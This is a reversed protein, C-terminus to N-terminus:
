KGAIGLAREIQSPWSMYNTSYFNCLILVDDYKEIKEGLMEMCWDFSHSYRPDFVVIRKYHETLYPIMGNAYSEKVVYLTKDTNAETDIVVLKADGNIFASYGKEYNVISSDFELTRDGVTLTKMKCKTVPMYGYAIDKFDKTRIDGTSEYVTGVYSDSLLKEEFYSLDHPTLGMMKCYERYGYYAGLATWHHDSMYYIYEDKHKYLEDYCNIKIVSDDVMDLFNKIFEKQNGLTNILKKDEIFAAKTPVPMVAVKQDKSFQLYKNIANATKGYAGRSAYGAYYPVGKYLVYSGQPSFRNVDEGMNQGSLNDPAYLNLNINKTGVESETAITEQKSYVLDTKNLNDSVTINENEATDFFNKDDGLFILSKEIEYTNISLISKIYKTIDISFDRIFFSDILYDEFEKAFKGSSLNQYNLTPIKTYERKERVSILNNNKYIVFNLTAVAIFFAMIVMACIKKSKNGFDKM